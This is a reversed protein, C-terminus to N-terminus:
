QKYFKIIEEEIRKKDYNKLFEHFCIKVIKKILKIFLIVTFFIYWKLINPFCYALYLITLIKSQVIWVESLQNAIAIGM